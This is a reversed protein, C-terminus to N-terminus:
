SSTMSVTDGNGVEYDKLTKSDELVDGLFQIKQDVVPVGEMEEIKEKVMQITDTPNVLVKITKQGNVAVFLEDNAYTMQFLVNITANDQVGVEVLLRDEDEDIRKGECYLRQSAKKIETVRQVEDKLASVLAFEDMQIEVTKTITKLNLKM